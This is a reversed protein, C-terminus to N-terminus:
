FLFAQTALVNIRYDKASNYPALLEETGDVVWRIEARIGTAFHRHWRVELGTAATLVANTDVEDQLAAHGIAQTATMYSVGGLLDIYWRLHWWVPILMRAGVQFDNYSWEATLITDIDANPGDLSFTARDYAFFAYFRLPTGSLRGGYGFTFGYGFRVDSTDAPSLALGGELQLLFHTGGAIAPPAATVIAAIVAAAALLNRVIRM